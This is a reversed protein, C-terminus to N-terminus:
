PSPPIFFPQLIECIQPDTDQSTGWVTDSEFKARKDIKLDEKWGYRYIKASQDM